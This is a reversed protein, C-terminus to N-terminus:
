LLQHIYIKETLDKRGQRWDILRTEKNKEHVKTMCSLQYNLKTQINVIIQKKQLIQHIKNVQTHQLSM